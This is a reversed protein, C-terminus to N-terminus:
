PPIIRIGSYKWVARPSLTTVAPSNCTGVPSPASSAAGSVSRKPAPIVAM